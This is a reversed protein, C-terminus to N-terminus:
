RWNKRLVLVPQYKWDVLNSVVIKEGIQTFGQKLREVRKESYLRLGNRRVIGTGRKVMPVGLVLYGNPKLMLSFEKMAAFDGDPNLPDGYRGLGDHEISSYSIILDFLPDPRKSKLEEMHIFEIQDSQIDIPNYDTTVLKEINMGSRSLVVAEVWPSIAGGILVRWKRDPNAAAEEGLIRDMAQYLQPVSKPYDACSFDGNKKGINVLADILEQTWLPKWGEKRGLYQMFPKAADPVQTESVDLEVFEDPFRLEMNYQAYRQRVDEPLEQLPRPGMIPEQQRARLMALRYELDKNQRELQQNREQLQQQIASISDQCSDRTTMTTLMGAHSTFEHFALLMPRYFLLQVTVIAALCLGSFISFLRM